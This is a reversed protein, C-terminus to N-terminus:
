KSYKSWCDQYYLREVMKNVYQTGDLKWSLSVYESGGSVWRGLTDYGCAAMCGGAVSETAGRAGVRLDTWRPTKRRKKKRTFVGIHNSIPISFTNVETVDVFCTMQLFHQVGSFDLKCLLSRCCPHQICLIRGIEPIDLCKLMSDVDTDTFNLKKVPLVLTGLNGCVMQEQLTSIHLSM